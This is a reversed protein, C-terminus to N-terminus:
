RGGQHSQPTRVGYKTMDGTCAIAPTRLTTFCTQLFSYVNAYIPIERCLCRVIKVLFDFPVSRCFFLRVLIVSIIARADPFPDRLRATLTTKRTRTEQGTGRPKERESSISCETSSM